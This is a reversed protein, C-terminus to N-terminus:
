DRPVEINVETGSDNSTINMRGGHMLLRERINNLGMGQQKEADFGKGDDTVIVAVYDKEMMLQVMIHKAQAYRLANNVLEHTACYLMVEQHEKLREKDGYHCFEINNYAQCFDHLASVIGNDNLSAPMLHHAVRRMEETANQALTKVATDSSQMSIATLMGGLRDHLDRGLRTREEAEGKIREKMREIRHRQRTFYMVSSAIVILTVLAGAMIWLYLHALRKQQKAENLQKETELTQYKIEMESLASQYRM